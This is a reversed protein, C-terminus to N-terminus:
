GATRDLSWGDYIYEEHEQQTLWDSFEQYPDPPPAAPPAPQEPPTPPQYVPQNSDLPIYVPNYATAPIYVPDSEYFGPDYAQVGTSAPLSESTPVYPETYNNALNQQLTQQNQQERLADGFAREADTIGYQETNRQIIQPAAQGTDVAERTVLTAEGSDSLVLTEIRIRDGPQTQYNGGDNHVPAYSESEFTVGNRQLHASSAIVNEYVLGPIDPYDWARERHTPIIWTSM